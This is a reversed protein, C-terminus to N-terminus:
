EDVKCKKQTPSEEDEGSEERERKQSGTSCHSEDSAAPENFEEASLNTEQKPEGSAKSEPPTANEDSQESSEKSCGPQSCCCQDATDKSSAQSCVTEEAEKVADKQSCSLTTKENVPAETPPQSSNVEQDNVAAESKQTEPLASSVNVPGALM